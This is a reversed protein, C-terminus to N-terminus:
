PRRTNLRQRLEAVEWLDNRSFPLLGTLASLTSPGLARKLGDLEALAARVEAADIEADGAAEEMMAEEAEVVLLAQLEWYRRVRKTGEEGLRAALAAIKQGALGTPWGGGRLTELQVRHEACEAALWRNAEATGFNLIAIIAVPAVLISGMMAIMPRDPFQNFLTHLAVALGYGPVFWLM